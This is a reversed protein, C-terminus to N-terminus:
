DLKRMGMQQLVANQIELGFFGSAAGANLGLAVELEDTVDEGAEGGTADGHLAYELCAHGYDAEVM